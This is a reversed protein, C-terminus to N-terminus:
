FFDDDEDNGDPFMAKYEAEEDFFDLESKLKKIRLKLSELLAEEEYDFLGELMDIENEINDVEEEYGYGKDTDHFDDKNNEIKSFRELLNSIEEPIKM